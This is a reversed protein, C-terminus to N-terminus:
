IRAPSANVLRGNQNTECHAICNGNADFRYAMIIKHSKGYLVEVRENDPRGTATYTDKITRDGSLEPVIKWGLKNLNAESFTKQSLM